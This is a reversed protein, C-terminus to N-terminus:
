LLKNLTRKLKNSNKVFQPDNLAASIFKFNREKMTQDLAIMAEDQFEFKTGKVIIKTAITIHNNYLEVEASDLSFQEANERYKDVLVSYNCDKLSKDINNRNYVSIFLNEYLCKNMIKKDFTRQDNVILVTVVAQIDLATQIDITEVAPFLEGIRTDYENSLCLAKFSVGQFRKQVERLYSIFSEDEINEKTALFGISDNLKTEQREYFREDWSQLLLEERITDAADIDLVFRYEGEELVIMTELSVFRISHEKGDAYRVPIVFEFGYGEEGFLYKFEPTNQDCILTHISENDILIELTQKEDTGVKKCWGYYVAATKQYAAGYTKQAELLIMPTIDTSLYIGNKVEKVALTHVHNNFFREPIEFTFRGKGDRNLLHHHLKQDSSKKEVKEGDIFLEIEFIADTNKLDFIYGTVQNAIVLADRIIYAQSGRREIVIREAEMIGALSFLWTKHAYIWDIMKLRRDDDTQVPRVQIRALELENHVIIAQTADIFIDVFEQDDFKAKVQDIEGMLQAIEDYDVSKLNSRADIRDLGDVCAAVKEFLDSVHKQMSIVYEHMATIKNEVSAKHEAVLATDPTDLVIKVKVINPDVYQEIAEAFPIELAGNIRAGGETANVTVIGEARAVQIDSEFFNRFMNWLMGTRVMGSGGYAEIYLDSEKHKITHLVHGESHSRGDAGYALDQGILIVTTFKAHYAVEYAMNAASMGVGIYGYEPLDFYRTYGFPRMSMQLTAGNVSDVLVPHSISSMACIIGEQFERSTRRYFEATLAVREISFVVDPKIDHKELIPLSADVCFLTVHNKITKLLPLQKALSPGTSAIVVTETSKVKQILEVLTPTEIIKSANALHWELGVLADSTDNGLGTVVHEIARIMNANCQLLSDGYYHEYYEINPELHYTKCYVKIASDSFIETAKVFDMEDNLFFFLRKTTIEQSFDILNFAIYLLEIEPEIIFIHAHNANQLLLKVFLGNAVGYIFLIPYRNFEAEFTDVKQLIEQQPIDQYLVTNHNHDFLNVNLTDKPDQFVEFRKNEEVGLLRAGLIPNQAIISQLNSEFTNM